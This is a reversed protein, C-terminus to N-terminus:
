SKESARELQPPLRHTFTGAHLEKDETKYVSIAKITGLEPFYALDVENVAFFFIPVGEEELFDQAGAGGYEACSYFYAAWKPLESGNM